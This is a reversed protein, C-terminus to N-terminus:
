SILPVNWFSRTKLRVWQKLNIKFIMIIITVLIIIRFIMIIIIMKLDTVKCKMQKFDSFQLFGLKYSVSGCVGCSKLM